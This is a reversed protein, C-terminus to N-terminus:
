IDASSLTSVALRISHEGHDRITHCLEVVAISQGCRHGVKAAVHLGDDFTASSVHQTYRPQIVSESGVFACFQHCTSRSSDRCGGVAINTRPYYIIGLLHVFSSELVSSVPLGEPFEIGGDINFVDIKFSYKLEKLGGEDRAERQVAYDSRVSEPSWM